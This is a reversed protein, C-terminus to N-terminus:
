VNNISLLYIVCNIFSTLSLYEWWILTSHDNWYSGSHKLLFSLLILHIFHQKWIVTQDSCVAQTKLMLQFVRFVAPVWYIIFFSSFAIKSFQSSIRFRPRKSFFVNVDFYIDGVYNFNLSWFTNLTIIGYMILIYIGKSTHHAISVPFFTWMQMDIHLDGFPQYSSFSFNKSTMNNSLLLSIISYLHCATEVWICENYFGTKLHSGVAM